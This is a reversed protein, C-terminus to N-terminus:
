LDASGALLSCFRATTSALHLAPPPRVPTMGAAIATSAARHTEQVLAHPVCWDPHAYGPSRSGALATRSLTSACRQVNAFLKGSVTTLEIIIHYSVVSLMNDKTDFLMMRADSYQVSLSPAANLLICALRERAVCELLLFLHLVVVGGAM